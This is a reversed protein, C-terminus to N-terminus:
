EDMELRSFRESKNAASPTISESSSDKKSRSASSQQIENSPQYNRESIVIRRDGDKFLLKGGELVLRDLEPFSYTSKIYAVLEFIDNFGETELNKEEASTSPTSSGLLSLVLADRVVEEPLNNVASRLEEKNKEEDRNMM